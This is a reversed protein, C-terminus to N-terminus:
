GSLGVITIKDLIAFVKMVIGCTLSKNGTDSETYFTDNSMDLGIKIQYEQKQSPMSNDQGSGVQNLIWAELIESVVGKKANTKIVSKSPEQLNFSIELVVDVKPM